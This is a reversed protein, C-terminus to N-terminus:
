PIATRLNIIKQIDAPDYAPWGGKNSTVLAGVACAFELMEAPDRGEILGTLIAALFSDGSGVTDQIIVKFGPHSYTKGNISIIAGDGGKTVIVADLDYKKKVLEIKEEDSTANSSYWGSIFNLEEHNMKVIDARSLLENLLKDDYHPPRLNIDLVKNKAVELLKFLTDRSTLNRAILSGFVFYTDDTFVNKLDDNWEIVDWAVPAVIDYQMEMRENPTAYVIGTPLIKDLQIYKTAINKGKLLEVLREGREDNGIRTIVIPPHGLKNLHYAVNMPAGGPVEGTPLVDWLIEGYCIVSHNMITVDFECIM